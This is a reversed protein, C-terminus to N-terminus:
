VSGVKIGGLNDKRQAVVLEFTNEGKMGFIEIYDICFVMDMLLSIASSILLSFVWNWDILLITSLLTFSIVCIDLWILVM